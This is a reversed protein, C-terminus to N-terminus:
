SSNDGYGSSTESTVKFKVIDQFELEEPNKNIELLFVKKGDIDKNIVIQGDPRESIHQLILGLLLTVIALVGLVQKVAPVDWIYSFAFYMSGYAPLVLQTTTKLAKEDM